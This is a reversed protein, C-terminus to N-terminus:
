YYGVRFPLFAVAGRFFPPRVYATHLDHVSAFAEVMRTHFEVEDMPPPNRSVEDLLQKLMGVPDPRPGYKDGLNEKFPLHPYLKSFVVIAQEVVQPWQAPPLIGPNQIPDLAAAMFDSLSQVTLDPLGLADRSDLLAQWPPYISADM